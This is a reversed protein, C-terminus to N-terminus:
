AQPPPPPPPTSSAFAQGISVVTTGAMRDTYKQHKDAAPTLIAVLWDIIVLGYIKSINRIFAKDFPVKGGNVTQVQLKLLRKGITGGWVVDLIASYLIMIFTSLLPSLWSAWWPAYSITVGYITTTGFLPTIAFMWILSIPIGIIIGDIILAILRYIWHNWDIQGTNTSM